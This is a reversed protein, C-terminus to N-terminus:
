SFRFSKSGNQSAVYFAVVVFYEPDGAFSVLLFDLAGIALQRQLKMRIAIRVIGVSFLFELFAALSIRDQRVCVLSGCVVAEPMGGDAASSRAPEVGRDKLIDAFDEPVKETESIKKAATRAPAATRLPTGIQTFVDRQFKFLCNKSRFGANGNAAV